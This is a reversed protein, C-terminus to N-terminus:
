KLSNRFKAMHQNVFINIDDSVKLFYFSGSLVFSIVALKYISDIYINALDPLIEGLVFGVLLIATVLLTKTSFPQMKLKIFVFSFRILNFCVISLATAFAAGEIGWIPIFVSNTFYTLVGLLLGTITDFRYYKSISILQGNAGFMLNIIKSLGLILFVWKGQDYVKGQIIYFNDIAAWMLAFVSGSLIYQTLATKQYVKELEDMKKEKWSKSLVALSIRGIANGPIMLLMSLYVANGYIATASLGIAGGIMLIDIRNVLVTAVGQLISFSSYNFYVKRLSKRFFNRKLKLNFEGQSILYIIFALINVVYTLNIGVVFGYFDIWELYFLLLLFTTMLRNFVSKLMVSFATKSRAQLYSDFVNDYLLLFSLPIVFLFYDVFLPSKEIYYSMIESKFLFMLGTIILFGFFPLLLGLALLGNDNKGERNFFPFFKVLSRYTGLHSIQSSFVAVNLLIERLGFEEPTFLQTMLLTINVFGIIVGLYNFVAAQSAQKSIVGL